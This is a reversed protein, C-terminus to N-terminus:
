ADSRFELNSCPAVQLFYSFWICIVLPLIQTVEAFFFFLNWSLVRRRGVQGNTLCMSTSAAQIVVRYTTEEGLNYNYVEDEYEGRNQVCHERNGIGFQVTIM